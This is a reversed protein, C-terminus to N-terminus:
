AAVPIREARGGMSLGTREGAQIKAFYAPSWQVGVLWAGRKVLQGGIVLDTPALWSEVIDGFSADWREHMDGLGAGVGAKEVQLGRLFDWAARQITAADAYEGQTDVVDPEYVVGLTYREPADRKLVVRGELAGQWTTADGM